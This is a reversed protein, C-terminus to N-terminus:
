LVFAVVYMICEVILLTWEAGKYLLCYLITLLDICLRLREVKVQKIELVVSVCRIKNKQPIGTCLVFM